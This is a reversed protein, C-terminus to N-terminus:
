GDYFNTRFYNVDQIKEGSVPYIEVGNEFGDCIKFFKCKMCRKDKNYLNLRNRKANEFAMEKTNDKNYEYVALNWDYIDYIHQYINCVHKEYGVMYCFPIYRANIYKIKSKNIFDKIVRAASKYLLSMDTQEQDRWPNLIIFNVELPDLTDILKLYEKTFESEIGIINKPLTCNIRVIMNLKKANNIAQIIKKFAGKKGVLKDHYEENYGHLSFLIERLGKEKSKKIFNLNSFVSGNSLCSIRLKKSTCYELIKFWDNHISSEGGSLDVETIGQNKVFDIREKIRDFPTVVDLHNINYCFECKYNCNTGTDIKARNNLVGFSRDIDPISLENINM